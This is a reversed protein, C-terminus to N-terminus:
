RALSQDMDGSFKANYVKVLIIESFKARHGVSNKSVVMIYVM